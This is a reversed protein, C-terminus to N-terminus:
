DAIHQIILKFTTVCITDSIAFNQLIHIVIFVM